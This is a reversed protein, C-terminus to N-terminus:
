IIGTIDLLVAACHHDYSPQMHKDSHQRVFISAAGDTGSLGRDTTTLLASLAAGRRDDITWPTGPRANAPRNNEILVLLVIIDATQIDRASTLARKFSFRLAVFRQLPM